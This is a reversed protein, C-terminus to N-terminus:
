GRNARWARFQVGQTDEDTPQERAVGHRAQRSVSGLSLAAARAFLPMGKRDIERLLPVRDPTIVQFRLRYTDVTLGVRFHRFAAEYAVCTEM